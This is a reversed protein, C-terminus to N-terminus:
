VAEIVGSLKKEAQNISPSFAHIRGLAWGIVGEHELQEYDSILKAM